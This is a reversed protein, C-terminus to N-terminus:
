APPGEMRGGTRESRRGARGILEPPGEVAHVDKLRDPPRCPTHRCSKITLDKSSGSRRAEWSAEVGAPGGDARLDKATKGNRRNTATKEGRGHNKCVLHCASEAELDAGTLAKVRQRM